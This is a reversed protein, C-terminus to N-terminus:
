VRISWLIYIFSGCYDQCVDSVLWIDLRSHIQPNQRRWTFRKSDPNRNRWIDCLNNRDILRDIEKRVKKYENTELFSGGKRDMVPNMIVNTDGGVIVKENASKHKQLLNNVSQYFKLQEKEKNPAYINLLQLDVSDITVRTFIYRGRLDTCTERIKVDLGKRFLIMVGKSHSTGHCFLVEGDWERNWIPESETTSYTEQLFCIDVKKKEIYNYISKRKIKRNLGRVNYSMLSIKPFLIRKSPNENLKEM